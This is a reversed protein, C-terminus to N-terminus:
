LKIMKYPKWEGNKNLRDVMSKAEHYTRYRGLYLPLSIGNVDQVDYLFLNCKSCHTESKLTPCDPAQCLKIEM